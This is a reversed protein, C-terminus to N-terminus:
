LAGCNHCKLPGDRSRKYRVSDSGYSHGCGTCHVTFSCAFGHGTDHSEIRLKTGMKEQRKQIVATLAGGDRLGAAALTDQLPLAQEGLVFGSIFSGDPVRRAVKDALAALTWDRDADIQALVKGSMVRVEVPVLHARRKQQERRKQERRKMLMLNDLAALREEETEQERREEEAEHERREKEAEQERREEEAEQERRKQQERRRMLMRNDLAVRREEEAAAIEAEEQLRKRELVALRKEEAAAVDAEQLYASSSKLVVTFFRAFEDRSLQEDKRKDFQNFAKVLKEEAPATIRLYGCLDACLEKVESFQLSGDRNTNFQRFFHELTHQFTLPNALLASLWGDPDFALAMTPLRRL